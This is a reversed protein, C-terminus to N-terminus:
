EAYKREICHGLRGLLLGKSVGLLFVVLFACIVEEEEECGWLGM